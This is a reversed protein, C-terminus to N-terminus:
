RSRRSKIQAKRRRERCAKENVCVLKQSGRNSSLKMPPGEQLCRACHKKPTRPKKQPAEPSPERVTDDM